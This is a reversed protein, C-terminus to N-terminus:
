WGHPKYLNSGPIPNPLQSVSLAGSRIKKMFSSHKILEYSPFEVPTILGVVKKREEKIIRLSEALDSDNSVVVACDYKNLWADNLLHVAINVDSQKEETKIVHVLQDPFAEAYIIKERGDRYTTVKLRQPPTTDALFAKIESSLFHGYYIDIEPIHKKLARIYTEQRIPKNVDLKGSVMTTFYKIKDIRNEANLLNSFLM